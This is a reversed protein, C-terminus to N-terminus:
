VDGLDRLILVMMEVLKIGMYNATKLIILIIICDVAVLESQSLKPFKGATKNLPKLLNIKTMLILFLLM